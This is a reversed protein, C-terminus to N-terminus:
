DDQWTNANEQFDSRQPHCVCIGHGTPTQMVVWRRGDRVRKAGLSTLRAVEAEIDDTELDLHVRPEHTVKQVNVQVDNPPASLRYHDEHGEAKYGLAASCFTVASELDDTNCDITIEGIRSKHM